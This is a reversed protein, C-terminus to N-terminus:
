LMGGASPKVQRGLREYSELLALRCVDLMLGPNLAADPIQSLMGAILGALVDGFGTRAFRRLDYATISIENKIGALAPSGKALYVMNASCPFIDLAELLQDTTATRFGHLQEQEGPHPTVILRLSEPLKATHGALARFGDADLVVPVRVLKLLQRVASATEPHTGLGPGLVLVGPRKELVEAVPRVADAKFLGSGDGPIIKRTIDVFHADYAPSVEATTFVQVSGCGTSWAAKAALIVAGTLGPSGGLVYVNGNQYKHHVTKGQLLQQLRQEIESKDGPSLSRLVPGGTQRLLHEPFPLPCLLRRGSLEPGMGLYCGSKATGFMCSTHAKLACGMVEGTDAHLGSPIDMAFVRAQWRNVSEIIEALAGTIERQLGTGFLGDVVTCYVRDPLANEFFRLPLGADAQKMKELIQLNAAADASMGDTGLALCVDVSFGKMLLLRSVALADGANNGKGCLSLVRVPEPQVECIADAARQAAVEMLTFGSIGLQEITLRDIERSQAATYLRNEYGPPIM